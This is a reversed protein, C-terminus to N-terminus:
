AGSVVATQSFIAWDVGQKKVAAEQWRSSVPHRMKTFSCAPKPRAPLTRHDPRQWRPAHDSLTKPRRTRARDAVATVLMLPLTCFFFCGEGGRFFSALLAQPGEVSETQTPDLFRKDGDNTLRTPIGRVM